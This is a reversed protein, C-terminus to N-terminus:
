LCAFCLVTILVQHFLELNNGIPVLDLNQDFCFVHVRSGSSGADFIVAYKNSGFNPSFKRNLSGVSDSPSRSLFLLFTILLLPLAIVLLVGRYRVIKDSLSDHQGRNRKLTKEMQDLPIHLPQAELLELASPSRHRIQGNGSSDLAPVQHTDQVSELEESHTTVSEVREPVSRLEVLKLGAIGVTATPIWCQLSRCWWIFYACNLPLCAPPIIVSVALKFINSIEGLRHKSKKCGFPFLFTPFKWISIM